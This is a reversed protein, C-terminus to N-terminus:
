FHLSLATIQIYHGLAYRISVLLNCSLRRKLEETLFEIINIKNPQLSNISRKSCFNTWRKYTGNYKTKTTNRWTASIIAQADSSISTTSSVLELCALGVLKPYLPHKAKTGPLKFYRSPFIIPPSIALEMIRTFWSRTTWLPVIVIAKKRDEEIEQLMRCIISFPPFAYIFINNWNKIFADILSSDPDSLWSAYIPIQKTLRSAFMDFESRGFQHIIYDFNKRKLMWEASDQFKRSPLDALLNHKDPIHVASIHTNNHICIKIDFNDFCEQFTLALM